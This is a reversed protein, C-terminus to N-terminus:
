KRRFTLTQIDQANNRAVIAVFTRKYGGVEADVEVEFTQSRVDFFRAMQQAAQRSGTATTLADLVSGGAGGIPTPEGDGGTGSRLQIITQAMNADIGPILQLTTESATNINIRGSSIPTFLDVLGASYTQQGPPSFPNQPQPSSTAPTNTTGSGWYMEPTIGKILLMESLDDIPGNKSNYAPTLGQYYSSEAGGIHPDDDADIWDQICAVIQPYEGADVGILIFAQGLIEPSNAAANINLKRELDTIKISYTGNGLHHDSLSINALPSNSTNMSGPGGAWIQNLSDYPENPVSMQLALIYKALEVGSRGIWELETESNANRALKTEIKMSYAFAGVLASLVFVTVMVIILAIGQRRNNTSIKM